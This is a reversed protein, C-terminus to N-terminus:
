NKKMLYYYNIKEVFVFGKKTYLNIAPINDIDVTLFVPHTLNKLLEDMIINGLGKGTFNDGVMIGLWFKDEFEIHGYGAITDDIYILIKKTHNNIISTERKEFYRFKKQGELNEKLFTDVEFTTPNDIIKIGSSNSDM